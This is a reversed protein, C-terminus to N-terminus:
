ELREMMDEEKAYRSKQQGGLEHMEEPMDALERRVENLYESRAAKKKQQLLERRQRKTDKDEYLVPNLKAAKFVEKKDEKESEEDEDSGENEGESSM